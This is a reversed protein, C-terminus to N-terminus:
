IRSIELEMNQLNRVNSYFSLFATVKKITEIMSAEPPSEKLGKFAIDIFQEISLDNLHNDLLMVLCFKQTTGDILFSSNDYNNSSFTKWAVTSAIAKLQTTRTSKFYSRTSNTYFCHGVLFQASANISIGRTGSTNVTKFFALM